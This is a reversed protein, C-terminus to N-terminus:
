ITRKPFVHCRLRNHFLKKFTIPCFNFAIGILFNNRKVDQKAVFIRTKDVLLFGRNVQVFYALDVAVSGIGALQNLHDVDAFWGATPEDFAADHSSFCDDVTSRRVEKGASGLLVMGKGLSESLCFYMSQASRFSLDGRPMRLNALSRQHGSACRCSRNIVSSAQVLSAPVARAWVNM